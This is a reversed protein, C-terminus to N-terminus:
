GASGWRGVIMRRMATVMAEYDPARGLLGASMMIGSFLSVLARSLDRRSAKDPALEAPALSAVEDCFARLASLSPQLARGLDDDREAEVLVTVVLAAITPDIHYLGAFDRLAGDIAEDFTSAAVLTERLRELGRTYVDEAVAVFLGAKSGFRQYIVPVTVNAGAGIETVSTGAYGKAAFLERAVRLLDARTDLGHDAKPRGPARVGVNRPARRIM